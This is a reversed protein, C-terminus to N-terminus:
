LKIFWMLDEDLEIRSKMFIKDVAKKVGPFDPGYDHGCLFGGPSVKPMWAMIDFTVSEYDHAADVFVFDLINNKIKKAAYLSMMRIIEFRGKYKELADLTAEYNESAQLEYIKRYTPSVANDDKGFYTLQNWTDVLTLKLGPHLALLNSSCEGRFVGIEAGRPNKIDKIRDYICNWRLRSM